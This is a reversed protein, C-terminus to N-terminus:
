LCVAPEASVAPSLQTEATQTIRRRASSVSVSIPMMFFWKVHKDPADGRRAKMEGRKMEKEKMSGRRHVKTAKGEKAKIEKM